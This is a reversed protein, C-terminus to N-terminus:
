GDPLPFFIISNKISLISNFNGLFSPQISYPTRLNKRVFYQFGLVFNEVYILELTIFFLSTHPAGREGSTQLPKNLFSSM